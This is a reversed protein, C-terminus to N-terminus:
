KKRNEETVKTTSKSEVQIAKIIGMQMVKLHNHDIFPCKELVAICCGLSLVSHLVALM